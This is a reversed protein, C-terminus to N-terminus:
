PAEEYRRREYSDARRASIIRIIEEDGYRGDAHVVLLLTGRTLGVTQWRAEGDVVRDLASIAHPDDFALQAAEFSVGHKVRNSADKAPDWDFTM